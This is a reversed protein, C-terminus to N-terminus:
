NGSGYPVVDYHMAYANQLSPLIERVEFYTDWFDSERLNEVVSQYRRLDDTEWVMVDTITSNYAESDYFKLKVEPHAALIPTIDSELFAFREKPALKLWAPTSKVLMFVTFTLPGSKAEPEQAFTASSNMAMGGMVMLSLAMVSLTKRRM